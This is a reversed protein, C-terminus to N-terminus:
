LKSFQGSFPYTTSDTLKRGNKLFIKTFYICAHIHSHKVCVCVCMQRKKLLILAGSKFSFCKEVRVLIDGDPVRITFTPSEDRSGLYILNSHFKAPCHIDFPKKQKCLLYVHLSHPSMPVSKPSVEGLQDGVKKRDSGNLPM